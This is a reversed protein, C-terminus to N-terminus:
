DRWEIRRQHDTKLQEIRLTISKIELMEANTFTKHYREVIRSFHRFKEAAEAAELSNRHNAQM